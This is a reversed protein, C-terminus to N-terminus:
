ICIDFVAFARTNKVDKGYRPEVGSPTLCVICVIPRYMKERESFFFM